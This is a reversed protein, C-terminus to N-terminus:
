LVAVLAATLYRGEPYAPNVVHDAAAGSMELVSITRGEARAAEHLMTVFGGSQTMAASCSCSLLLGGRRTARMALANVTTYKRTARKLDKVSPALKPPDCVVVDYTHEASRLFDTVDAQEFSALHGLGNLEANERALAVAAASSDVGLTATAGARAAGLSFAGSYCYLDLVSRGECLRAVRRRNERHDCYFGSKQGRYPHVVYRLSAESVEVRGADAAEGEGAAEQEAEAVTTALAEEAWGDQRLRAENRRWVVADIGEVALLAERVADRRMELWVASSLVVATRGFVDVMLGSLRDGEGNVLRYATTEESPLGCARRVDVCAAIRTRLLAAIDREQTLAPEDAAHALMRVRYMSFPNFVGWGVRNEAGDVVDVVDGVGPSGRIAAVARSFVLPNGARFLRAKGGALVISARHAGASALCFFRLLRPRM